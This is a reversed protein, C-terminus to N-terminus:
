AFWWREACKMGDMEWNAALKGFRVKSGAAALDSVFALVMVGGEDSVIQQMEYYMARRKSEDLEARAAKLLENFRQHKWHSDNWPADASYSTSFMWDSTPRGGWYVACWPKKMGWYRDFENM